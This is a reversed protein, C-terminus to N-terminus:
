LSPQESIAQDGNPFITYHTDNPMNGPRSGMPPNYMADPDDDYQMPDSARMRDLAEVFGPCQDIGAIDGIDRRLLFLPGDVYIGEQYPPPVILDSDTGATIKAHFKIYDVNITETTSPNPLLYMTPAGSIVTYMTPRSTTDNMPVAQLERYRRWTIPSLPWDDDFYARTVRLLDAMDNTNVTRLDYKFTSAVMPFNGTGDFQWWWPESRWTSAAMGCATIAQYVKTSSTADGTDWDLKNSIKTLLEAVTYGALAM